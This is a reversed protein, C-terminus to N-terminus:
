GDTKPGTMVLTVAVGVAVLALYDVLGPPIQFWFATFVVGLVPVVLVGVTSVVVPLLAVIKFYAWYCFVSTVTMNYLVCLMPLLSPEEPINQWDWLIAVPAIPLVGFLHQWAVVVTVPMDFRYHKVLATGVGWSIAAGTVLLPGLLGVELAQEDGFFLLGMGVLGMALATASRLSLSHSWLIIGTLSAWLPMTYALIAARGSNMEAIGYLVLINWIAMNLMATIVMRGVQGRPIGLRQGAMWAISFLGIAGTISACTRFVWPPIETMGIKMIPWNMGWFIALLGLLVLALKPM